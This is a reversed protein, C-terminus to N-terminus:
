YSQIHQQLKEAPFIGSRLAFIMLGMRSKVRLKEYLSDRYSEITRISIGMMSAINKYGLDSCCLTLFEMERSTIKLLVSSKAKRFVIEPISSSYYYDKNYLALLAARIEEPECGKSLFGNVGMNIMRIISFETNFVSLVLIRLDVWREKLQRIVEYNNAENKSIDLICIDPLDELGSLTELLDDGNDVEFIMRFSEWSRITDSLGKRYVPYEDAIAIKVVTQDRM